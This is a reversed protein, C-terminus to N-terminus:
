FLSLQRSEAERARWEPSQSEENLWAEVYAVAGGACIIRSEHLFSSKYGTETIPLAAREPSVCTIDLHDLGIQACWDHSHRVEIVYGQWILRHECVTTM